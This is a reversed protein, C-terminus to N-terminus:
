LPWIKRPFRPAMTVHCMIQVINDEAEERITFRVADGYKTGIQDCHIVPYRKGISLSTINIAGGSVADNFKQTLSM